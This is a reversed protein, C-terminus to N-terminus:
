KGKVIQQQHRYDGNTIQLLYTGNPISQLDLIVEVAQSAPLYNRYQEQGILNYLVIETTQDSDPLRVKLEDKVPNPYISIISISPEFVVVVTESYTIRGDLDEQRLRYYNANALPSADRYQYTKLEYSNASASFSELEIFNVGDASRELSFFAHDIESATAWELEIVESAPIARFYLLEVPLASLALFDQDDNVAGCNADGPIGWTFDGYEFGVGQLQLSNGNATQTGINESTQGGAPGDVAVLEDTYSIFQILNDNDDVLSMGGSTPTLLVIDVEIINFGSPTTTSPPVGTLSVTDLAVGVDNYTTVSWGTLDEGPGAALEVCLDPNLQDIENFFVNQGSLTVSWSWLLM